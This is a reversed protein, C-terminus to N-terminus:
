PILELTTNVYADSEDRFITNEKMLSLSLLKSEPM